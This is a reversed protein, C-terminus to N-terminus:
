GNIGGIYLEAISYLAAKGSLKVRSGEMQCYLTGGRESAQYAVIDNKLLRKAWFPVIHCHGSGCVADEPVNCKPAFTRSVCDTNKGRSTAHLLLGDLMKVKELDPTLKRVIAEDEFVCMLDRGMYAEKPEAGIAQVMQETVTVPNLDYAPFDMEYLTEM